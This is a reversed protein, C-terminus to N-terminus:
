LSSCIWSIFFPSLFRGNWLCFIVIFFSFLCPLVNAFYVTASCNFNFLKGSSLLNRRIFVWPLLFIFGWTMKKFTSTQISNSFTQYPCIHFFVHGTLCLWEFHFDPTIEFVGVVESRLRSLSHTVLTPVGKFLWPRWSAMTVMTGHYGHCRLVGLHRNTMQWCPLNLWVGGWHHKTSGKRAPLLNSCLRSLGVCVCVCACACVCVKSLVFCIPLM